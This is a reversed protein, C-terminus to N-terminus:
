RAQLHGSASSGLAEHPGGRAGGKPGPPQPWDRSESSAQMVRDLRAREAARSATIRKRWYAFCAVIILATLITM